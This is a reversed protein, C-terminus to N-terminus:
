RGHSVEIQRRSSSRTPPRPRSRKSSKRRPLDSVGNTAGAAGRLFQDVHRRAFAQLNTVMPLSSGIAHLQRWLLLPGMFEMALLQPDAARLWGERVLRRMFARLHTRGSGMRELLNLRGEKALRIGDSMLICFIQQQRPTSYHDLIMMALRVLTTRTDYIPEDVLGSLREVKSQHDPLILAEFLAEKSPFYNYLASERVGVATAIDRLSTGFYGKGAFLQLAANLIAERTHRGDAHQPRAM